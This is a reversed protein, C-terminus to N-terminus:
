KRSLFNAFRGSGRQNMKAIIPYIMDPNYHGKTERMVVRLIEDDTVMGTLLAKTIASKIEQEDFKCLQEM